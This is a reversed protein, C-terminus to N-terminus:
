RDRWWIFLGYAIFLAMLTYIAKTLLEVSEM